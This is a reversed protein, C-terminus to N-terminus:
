SDEEELMYDVMQNRWEMSLENQQRYVDTAWVLMKDRSLSMDSDEAIARIEEEHDEPNFEDMM